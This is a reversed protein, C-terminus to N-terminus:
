GHRNIHQWGQGLGGPARRREPVKRRHPRDPSLDHATMWRLDGAVRNFDMNAFAAFGWTAERDSSTLEREIDDDDEAVVAGKRRRQLRRVGSSRWTLLALPGVKKEITSSSPARMVLSGLLSAVAIAFISPHLPRSKRHVHRNKPSAGSDHHDVSVEGECACLLRTCRRVRVVRHTRIRPEMGVDAEVAAVEDKSRPTGAAAM